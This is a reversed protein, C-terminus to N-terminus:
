PALARRVIVRRESRRAVVEFGAKLFMQVLGTFAEDARATPHKPDLPYAEVIRAGNRHAYEAAAEILRGCLGAGRLRREVYFCVISWVPLDDVRRLTRSRDLVPFRERPAVSVWGVARGERYALLGPVEGARIISEMAQRNGEGARRAFESRPIRWWMCWCGGEAGRPGFLAQLDPWENVTVPRFELPLGRQRAQEGDPQNATM